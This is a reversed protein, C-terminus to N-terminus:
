WGHQKIVKNQYDKFHSTTKNWNASEKQMRFTPDPVGNKHVLGKEYHGEFEHDIITSNVNSRTSFLKIVPDTRMIMTQLGGGSRHNMVGNMRKGKKDSQPSLPVFM